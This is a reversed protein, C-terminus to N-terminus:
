KTGWEDLKDMGDLASRGTAIWRLFFYLMAPPVLVVFALRRLASM